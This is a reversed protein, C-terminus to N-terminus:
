ERDHAHGVRALLRPTLIVDHRLQRLESVDTTVGHRRATDLLSNWHLAEMDEQTRDGFPEDPGVVDRATKQVQEISESAWSGGGWGRDDLLVVRTGDELELEHRASICMIEQNAQGQADAITVLRTLGSM